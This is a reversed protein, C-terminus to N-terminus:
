TVADPGTSATRSTESDTSLPSNQVIMPGDPQPLDVSSPMSPPSTTGSAPRTSMAPRTTVPGSGRVTAVTNWSGPSKGHRVTTSFM